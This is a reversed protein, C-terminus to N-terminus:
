EATPIRSLRDLAEVFYYDGWMVSEDVGIGEGRHYLSHRLIGEWGDEDTGLFEPSSLRAVIGRAYERYTAGAGADGLLEALQLMASATISAGSAEYRFEPHPDSWDNPGVFDAGVQAIYLDACRRASDLFREDHTWQYATGFGYIAWAHGRVWSSDSRYGQHTAARLFEGSDPDFWGEHVTSADGRVLFRRSTLAHATAIDALAPDGSLEAAQYIIGINMMVDIFTSGPSVWTRLYRGARNFRRAMTRGAQILVDRTEDNPHAAHWRGWSPTFLFGIDHTSTDLKRPEVIRSYREAQERWEPKGTQEAFIWMMGALFGGTWIPAWSDGDFQWRGNSTYVPVQGPHQRVLNWVRHEAISLAREADVDGTNGSHTELTM